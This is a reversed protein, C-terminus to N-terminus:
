VKLVILTLIYLMHM